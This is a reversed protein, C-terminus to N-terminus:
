ISLCNTCECAFLAAWEEETLSDRLEFRLDLATQQSVEWDSNLDEFLALAQDADAAYNKFINTLQKGSKAFKKEFAKVEKRLEVLSQQAAEARAPDAVVSEVQKSLQKIAAPTLMSGSVGGIGGSLFYAALLAWIM